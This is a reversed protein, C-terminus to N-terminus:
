ETRGFRLEYCRRAASALLQRVRPVSVGLQEAIEAHALGDLRSLLWAARTKASLGDLMRDVELLADLVLRREEPSPATAVPQSALAALWAQELERRRYQDVLLGRAITTLWARPERLEALRAQRGALIRVFTDHALDAADSANGLRRNLWGRLWDHHDGYLVEVSLTPSPESVINPALLLRLGPANQCASVPFGSPPRLAAFLFSECNHGLATGPPLISGSIQKHRRRGPCRELAWGNLLMSAVKLNELREALEM